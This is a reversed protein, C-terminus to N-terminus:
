GMQKNAHESEQHQFWRQMHNINESCVRKMIADMVHQKTERRHLASAPRIIMVDINHLPYKWNGDRFKCEIIGYKSNTAEVWKKAEDVLNPPVAMYFKNPVWGYEQDPNERMTRHKLKRAEGRWMDSKSNKIEIEHWQKNKTYVLVDANLCETACVFGRKFRYYVMIAWKMTESNAKM